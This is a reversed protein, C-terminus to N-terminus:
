EGCLGLYAKACQSGVAQSAYAQELWLCPQAAQCFIGLQSPVCPGPEVWRQGWFNAMCLMEAHTSLRTIFYKKRKLDEWEGGGGGEEGEEGGDEGEEEEKEAVGVRKKSSREERGGEGGGGEERGNGNGREEQHGGEGGEGEMEERGNGERQGRGRGRGRGREEREQKIFLKSRQKIKLTCKGENITGSKREINNIRQWDWEQIPFVLIICQMVIICSSESQEMVQVQEIQM